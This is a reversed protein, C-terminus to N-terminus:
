TKFRSCEEILLQNISSNAPKKSRGFGDSALVCFYTDEAGDRTYSRAICRKGQPLRTVFQIDHTAPVRRRLLRTRHLPDFSEVAFQLRKRM